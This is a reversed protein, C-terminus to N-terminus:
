VYQVGQEETKITSNSYTFALQSFNKFKLSFSFSIRLSFSKRSEM